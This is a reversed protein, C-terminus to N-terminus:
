NIQIVRITVPIKYGDEIFDNETIDEEYSNVSIVKFTDNKVIIEKEDCCDETIGYNSLEDAYEKNEEIEDYDVQHGVIETCEFCYTYEGNFMDSGDYDGGNSWHIGTHIIDGVKFQIIDNVTIYREGFGKYNNELKM